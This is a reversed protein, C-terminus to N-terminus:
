GLAIVRLARLVTLSLFSPIFVFIGLLVSIFDNSFPGLLLLTLLLLLSLKSAFFFLLSRESRAHCLVGNLLRAYLEINLTM